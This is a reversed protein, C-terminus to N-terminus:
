EQDASRLHDLLTPINVQSSPKAEASGLFPSILAGLAAGEASSITGASVARLISQLAGRADNASIIEPLDIKILRDRPLLRGLLFKLMAVDGQKAIDIATRLLESQEGELLAASILTSKNRSGPRRGSNGEPFPRGRRGNSSSM